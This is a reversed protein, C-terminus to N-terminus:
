LVTLSVKDNETITTSENETPQVVVGDILEPKSEPIVVPTGCTETTPKDADVGLCLLGIKTSTHFLLLM